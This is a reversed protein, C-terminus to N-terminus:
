SIKSKTWSSKTGGNFIYKRGQRSDKYAPMSDKGLFSIFVDDFYDM